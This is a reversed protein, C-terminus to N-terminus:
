QSATINIIVDLGPLCCYREARPAELSYKQGSLWIKFIEPRFSFINLSAMTQLILASPWLNERTRSIIYLIDQPRKM